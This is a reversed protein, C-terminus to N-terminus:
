RDKEWLPRRQANQHKNRLTRTFGKKEKELRRGRGYGKRNKKLRDEDAGRWTLLPMKRKKMNKKEKPALVWLGPLKKKEERVAKTNHTTKKGPGKNWCYVRRREREV